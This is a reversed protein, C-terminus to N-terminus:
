KYYRISFPRFEGRGALTALVVIWCVVFTGIDVIVLFINEKFGEVDKRCIWFGAINIVTLLVVLALFLIGCPTM